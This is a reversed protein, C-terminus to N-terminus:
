GLSDVNGFKFNEYNQNYKNFNKKKYTEMSFVLNYLLKNQFSELYLDFLLTKGDISLITM